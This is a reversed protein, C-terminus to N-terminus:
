KFRRGPCELDLLDNRGNMTVYLDFRGYAGKPALRSAAKNDYRICEHDHVARWDYRRRGLIIDRRDIPCM